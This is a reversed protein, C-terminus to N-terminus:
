HTNTQLLVLASLWGPLSLGASTHIFICVDVTYEGVSGCFIILARCVCVCLFRLISSPVATKMVQGKLTRLGGIICLNSPLIWASIKEKILEESMQLNMGIERLFHRPVKVFSTEEKLFNIQWHPKPQCDCDVPFAFAHDLMTMFESLDLCGQM